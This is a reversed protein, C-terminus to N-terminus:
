FTKSQRNSEDREPMSAIVARLLEATAQVDRGARHNGGPIAFRACAENLTLPKRSALARMVFQMACRWGREVPVTHYRACMAAVARRDFAANYAVLLKGEIRPALESWVDGWDRAGAFETSVFRSNKSERPAPNFRPHVVSEYILTGSLDGLAVEIIEVMPGSGITETDLILARDTLEYDELPPTYLQRANFLMGPFRQWDFTAFSPESGALLVHFKVFAVRYKVKRYRLCERPTGPAAEKFLQIDRPARWGFAGLRALVAIHKADM